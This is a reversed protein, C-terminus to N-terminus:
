QTVRFNAQLSFVCYTEGVLDSKTVVATWPGSDPASDNDPKTDCWFNSKTNQPM